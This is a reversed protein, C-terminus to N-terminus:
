PKAELESSILNWYTAKNKILEEHTGREKVQGAELVIIEDCDRITSLRHAVIICTCGRARLRDDIQREVLPDLASTAEDLILISPELALARALELRQREGGSFNRGGESVSAEFGGRRAVAEEIGADTIARQLVDLPLDNDWLTLNDRLSGEFMLISQDVQGLCSGLVEPHISQLPRGDMLIEGSWPRYLGCILRGVTSKGSGTSGVLAVRQGPSLQLSFNTLLAPRTPDYGFCIDKLELSGRLPTKDDLGDFSEVENDMIDDMRAIDGEIEQLQSGLSVLSGIPGLFQSMLTNFAMLMGLTMDGTMVQMGGLILVLLSGIQGIMPPLASLAQSVMGLEQQANVVKAQSGSWRTFFDGERGSAKLSEINVLGDMTTGVFKGQEQVLRMNADKRYRSVSALALGDILALGLALATLKPDYLYMVPLYFIIMLLNFGATALQGSLLRAVRDNLEVRSAIDGAFRQSYFQLPLNLIHWFFKASGTLTLQASLRVLFYQQLWTLTYQLLITVGMAALLWLIWDHLAQGLIRDVFVQLFVPTVIGPFVLLLSALAVYLLGRRAGKARSMLGRRVSRPEGGKEFSETPKFTLVVGTYSTRFKDWTVQRPGSAPDNLYVRKSDYGEVVLFHNFEWFVIVPLGMQKLGDIDKKYGKAELGYTRAAKLVSSANSGDRSVGCEVRLKELPVYRGYFALIIALSAAGCEVAEMQIVTPTRVRTRKSM